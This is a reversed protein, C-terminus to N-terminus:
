RCRFIFCYFMNWRSKLIVNRSWRLKPCWQKRLSL